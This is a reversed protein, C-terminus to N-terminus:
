FPLSELGAGFFVIAVVSIGIALALVAGTTMAWSFIPADYKLHMFIRVVYLFKIASLVVLAPVMLAGLQPLYVVIFELFTVVALVGAIFWYERKQPDVEAEEELEAAEHELATDMM